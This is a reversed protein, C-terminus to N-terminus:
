RSIIFWKWSLHFLVDFSSIKGQYPFPFRLTYLAYINQYTEELQQNLIGGVSVASEAELIALFKHM